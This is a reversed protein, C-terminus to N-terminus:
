RSPLIHRSRREGLPSLFQGFIESSLTISQGILEHTQRSIEPAEGRRGNAELDQLYEPLNLWRNILREDLASEATQTGWVIGQHLDTIRVEDNKDNPIDDNTM